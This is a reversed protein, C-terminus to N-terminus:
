ADLAELRRGAEAVDIEGGELSRLIRLRADDYAAAIAPKVPTAVPETPDTAAVVRTPQPAPPAPPTPPEPTTPPEPPAVARPRVVQLDGSMSRFTVLPGTTGVTLTKRSRGGEATAAIESTMDGALTTMEIRVDGAPALLADGSVTDITFPGPGALRAAIKMDGSTTTARLSPLTAARIALDGSVTRATIDSDGVALIDVHGSVAEIALRGSVSRLTVDGSATRYRQDGLLGNAEIEGSAAEIVVTARRPVDIDLEPTHNRGRRGMIEFSGSARLAVSGDSTEIALMGALDHDNADHVSITDGDVAHLRVEGSRLRVALLGEAGIRAEFTSGTTTTM